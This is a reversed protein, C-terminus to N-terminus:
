QNNVLFELQVHLYVYVIAELIIYCKCYATASIGQYCCKYRVSNNEGSLRAKIYLYSVADIGPMITFVIGESFVRVVATNTKHKQMCICKRKLRLMLVLFNSFYIRISPYSGEQSNVM